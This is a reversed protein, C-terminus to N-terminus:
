AQSSIELFIEMKSNVLARALDRILNQYHCYEITTEALHQM